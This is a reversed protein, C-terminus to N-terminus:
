ALAHALLRDFDVKQANCAGINTSGMARPLEIRLSDCFGAIGSGFECIVGAVFVQVTWDAEVAFSLAFAFEGRVHCALSMREPAGGFARDSGILLNNALCPFGIVALGLDVTGCDVALGCRV